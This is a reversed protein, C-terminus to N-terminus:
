RGKEECALRRRIEDWNQDVWDQLKRIEEESALNFRGQRRLYEDVSIRSEKNLYRRSGKKLSFVGNEQEWLIWMGSKVALRAIEISESPDFRWGPPCPSFLHVFKTGKIDKIKRFTDFVDQPDAGNVVGVYPIEHAAIIKAIDKKNERKGFPTTTTVAALPTSGSRQTGTNAYIENDYCVYIFNTGREIAGSLAQIGIDVTGGDGAWTMVTIDDKGLAEYGAVIGSAASAGAAFAMNIFPVTPSAGPWVGIYVNACSAPSVVVTKPGLAKLAWRLALESVCGACASNGALLYEETYEVALLEKLAM